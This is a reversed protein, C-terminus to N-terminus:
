RDPLIKGAAISRDVWEDRGDLPGTSGLDDWGWGHKKFAEALRRDIDQNREKDYITYDPDIYFGGGYKKRIDEIRRDEDKRRREQEMKFGRNEGKEDKGEAISREIWDRYAAVRTHVEPNGPRACEELGYSVLGMLWWRGDEEFAVPGGSDSQFGM